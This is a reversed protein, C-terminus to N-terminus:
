FIEIIIDKMTDYDLKLLGTTQIEEFDAYLPSSKIEDILQILRKSALYSDGKIVYCGIFSEGLPELLITYEQYKVRELYGKSSFMEQCFTNIASLFGGVLQDDIVKEEQFDYSYVTLGFDSIIFLYVSEEPIEEIKASKRHIAQDILIDLQANDLREKFPADRLSEWIKKEELFKDYAKSVKFVMRHLNKERALKLAQDLKQQAEELNTQILALKSELLYTEVTRSPSKFQSAKEKLLDLTQEFEVLLEENNTTQLEKLTLEALHFGIGPDIFNGPTDKLLQTFLTQAKIRDAFHKSTKLVLAKAYQYNYNVHSDQPFKNTLEELEDLHPQVQEDLGLELLSKIIKLLSVGIEHTTKAEQAKNYNIKALKLSKQFDGKEYFCETLNGENILIGQTYGIEKSLKLSEQYIVIALELEDQLSYMLGKQILIIAQRLKWNHKDNLSSAESFYKLASDYEGEMTSTGLAANTNMLVWDRFYPDIDTQSKKISELQENLSKLHNEERKYYVGVITYMLKTVIKGRLTKAQKERKNWEDITLLIDGEEIGRHYLIFNKFASTITKGDIDLNRSRNLQQILSLGKDFKGTELLQILENLEEDTLHAIKSKKWFRSFFGKKLSKVKNLRLKNISM